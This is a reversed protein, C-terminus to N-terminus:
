EAVVVGVEEGSDVFAFGAGAGDSDVVGAWRLKALRPVPCPTTADLLVVAAHAAQRSNVLHKIRRHVEKAEVWLRSLAQGLAWDM